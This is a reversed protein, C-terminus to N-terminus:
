QVPQDLLRSLANGDPMADESGVEADDLLDIPCVNQSHRESGTVSRQVLDLHIRALRPYLGHTSARM